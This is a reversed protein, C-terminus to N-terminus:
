FLCSIISKGLERKLVLIYGKLLKAYNAVIDRNIGLKCAIASKSLEDELMQHMMKVEGKKLM